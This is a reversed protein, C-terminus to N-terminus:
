TFFKGMYGQHAAKLKPLSSTDCDRLRQKMISCLNEIPNFDPSSGPWDSIYPVESDKLWQIVSKTTHCPAGDQMFIKAKAKEFSDPLYDCLLELYNNQNMMENKPLTILEGVGHYSFCAWVMLSAPHKVTKVTFQSLHPDTHPQRYVRGYSTGTVTFTAEDSWLVSRWTELDWVSYKKCFRIRNKKQKETLLPKRRAHYSKFGLDDHLAQQVCHLSVSSLLCPNKEKIERATLFPSTKLQRSTVKLSRPSILKPRGTRRKPVPIDEEGEEKFRKVMKQVSRLGVGSQAAIQKLEHGGKYLSIVAVIDDGSTVRTSM